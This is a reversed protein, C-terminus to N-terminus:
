IPFKELVSPHFIVADDVYAHGFLKDFKIGDVKIGLKRVTDWTLERFNFSRSTNIIVLNGADYLRNVARIRNEHVNLVTWKGGNYKTDILTGDLDILYVKRANEVHELDIEEDPMSLYDFAFRGAKLGAYIKWYNKRIDGFDGEVRVFRFERWIPMKKALEQGVAVVEEFTPERNFELKVVEVM